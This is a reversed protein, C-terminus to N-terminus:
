CRCACTTWPFCRRAARLYEVEAREAADWDAEAKPQGAQEGDAYRPIRGVRLDMQRRFSEWYPPITNLFTEMNSPGVISVGAAYLEPTFTVGALTAYGGYSGGYIVVRAPDAIGQAVAWAVADSLDDQM